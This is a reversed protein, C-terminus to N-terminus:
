KELTQFLQKREKKRQKKRVIASIIEHFRASSELSIANNELARYMEPVDEVLCLVDETCRWCTQLTVVKNQKILYSCVIKCHTTMHYEYIPDLSNIKSNICDM